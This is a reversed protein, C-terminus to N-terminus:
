DIAKHFSHLISMLTNCLFGKLRLRRKLYRKRCVIAVSQFNQFVLNTTVVLYSFNRKLQTAVGELINSFQLM